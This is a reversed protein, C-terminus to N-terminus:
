EAKSLYAEYFCIFAGLIFMLCFLVFAWLMEHSLLYGHIGRIGNFTVPNNVSLLIFTFLGITGILLIMTGFFMKKM